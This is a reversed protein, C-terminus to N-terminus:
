WILESPVKVATTPEGNGVSVSGTEIYIWGAPEGVGRVLESVIDRAVLDIFVAGQGRHDICRERCPGPRIGHDDAPLPVINKM